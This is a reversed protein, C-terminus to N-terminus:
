LYGPNNAIANIEIDRVIKGLYTFQKLCILSNLNKISSIVNEIDKKDNSNKGETNHFIKTIQEIISYKTILSIKPESALAYLFNHISHMVKEDRLKKHSFFRAFSPHINDSFQLVLWISLTSSVSNLDQKKKIKQWNTFVEKKRKINDFLLKTLNERITPSKYPIIFEFLEIFDDNICNLPVRKNKAEMLIGVFWKYIEVLKEEQQNNPDMDWSICDCIKSIIPKFIKKVKEDIIFYNLGEWLGKSFALKKELHSQATMAETIVQEGRSLILKEWCEETKYLNQPKPHFFGGLSAFIIGLSKFIEIAAFKTKANNLKYAYFLTKGIALFLDVIAFFFVSLAHLRIFISARTRTYKNQINTEYIEIRIVTWHVLTGKKPTFFAKQLTQPKNLLTNYIATMSSGEYFDIHGPM